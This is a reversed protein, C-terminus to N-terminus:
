GSSLDSLFRLAYIAIGSAVATNLSSKIGQMPLSVIRDCLALIGPDVGSIENGVVLVIPLGKVESLVYHLFVSGQGGELAWLRMGSSKLAAAAMCGNEHFTWGVTEQAGLATKRLKPNDPTPTIGCLHLRRVGAGDSTRFISGVNYISRINDLLVEIEPFGQSAELKKTKHEPYPDSGTLTPAKCVPCCLGRLDGEIVPFRLGCAKNTCLRIQHSIEQQMTLSSGYVSKCSFRYDDKPLSVSKKLPHNRGKEVVWSHRAQQCYM